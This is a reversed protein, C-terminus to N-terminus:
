ITKPYITKEAMQDIKLHDPVSNGKMLYIKETIHDINQQIKPYITLLVVELLQLLRALLGILCFNLQLFLSVQLPNM